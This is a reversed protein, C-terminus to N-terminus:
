EPLSVQLAITKGAGFVSSTLLVVVYYQLYASTRAVFNRLEYSQRLHVKVSRINYMVDFVQQAVKLRRTQL